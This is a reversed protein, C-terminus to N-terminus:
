DIQIVRLRWVALLLAILAVVAMTLAASGAASRDGALLNDFVLMTYARSSVAEVGPLFRGLISEWAFVYIMGALLARSIVLSVTLFVAGLLMTAAAAAGAMAIFISGVDAAGEVRSVLITTIGLGILLAPITVLLIAAYKGAILRLRSVPKMLLYPLTKDELENGFAATAPLLVVIPLLTPVIMEGFLDVLFEDPTDGWPRIMYILAFLAPICSLLLAIRATRGGMFQRVSLTTVPFTKWLIATM